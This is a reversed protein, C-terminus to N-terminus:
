FGFRAVHLAILLTLFIRDKKQIFFIQINGDVQKAIKESCLSLPM